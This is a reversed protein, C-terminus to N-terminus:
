EKRPYISPPPPETTLAPRDKMGSTLYKMVTDYNERLERPFTRLSKHLQDWVLATNLYM